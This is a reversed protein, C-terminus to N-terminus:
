KEESAVKSIHTGYPVTTPVDKAQGIEAILWGGSTRELRYRVRRTSATRIEDVTVVASRSDLTEVSQSWGKIEKMPTRIAETIPPPPSRLTDALCERFRDADDALIADRYAEVCEGPTAFGKSGSAWRLAMALILVAMTLPIALRLWKMPDISEM